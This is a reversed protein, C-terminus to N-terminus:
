PKEAGLYGTIGKRASRSEQKAEHWQSECYTGGWRRWAGGNRWGREEGGGLPNMGEKGEEGPGGCHVDLMVVKDLSLSLLSSLLLSFLLPFFVM